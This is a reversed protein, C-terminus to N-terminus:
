SSLMECTTAGYGVIDVDCNGVSGPCPRSSLDFCYNIYVEVVKFIPIGFVNHPGYFSCEGAYDLRLGSDHM